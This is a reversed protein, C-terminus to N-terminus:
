HDRSIIRTTDVDPVSIKKYKYSIADLGSPCLIVPEGPYVKKLGNPLVSKINLNENALM